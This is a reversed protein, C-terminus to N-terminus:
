CVCRKFLQGFTFILKRGAEGTETLRNGFTSYLELSESGPLAKRLVQNLSSTCGRGHERPVLPESEHIPLAMDRCSGVGAPPLYGGSNLQRPEKPLTTSPCGNLFACVCEEAWFSSQLLGQEKQCCQSHNQPTRFNSQAVQFYWSVENM